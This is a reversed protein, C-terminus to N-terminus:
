VKICNSTPAIRSPFIVPMVLNPAKTSNGFLFVPITCMESTAGVKTLSIRSKTVSPWSTLTLTSPTPSSPLTLRDILFASGGAGFGEDGRRAAETLVKSKAWASSTAGALILETMIDVNGKQEAVQMATKSRFYFTRETFVPTDLEFYEGKTAIGLALQVADVPIAVIGAPVQWLLNAASATGEPDANNALESRVTQIDGDRAACFLTSHCSTTILATTALAGLFLFYKTNM